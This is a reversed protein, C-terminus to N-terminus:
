REDTVESDELTIGRLIHNNWDPLIVFIKGGLIIQLDKGVKMFGNSADETFKYNPEDM